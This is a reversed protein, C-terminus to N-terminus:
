WRITFSPLVDANTLITVAHPAYRAGKGPGNGSRAYSVSGVSVSSFTAKAGTLDDLELMFQAQACTARMFVDIVDAATPMGQGDTDYLAGAAMEDVVESARNLVITLQGSDTAQDGSWERYDDAMAYASVTV